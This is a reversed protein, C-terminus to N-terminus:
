FDRELYARKETSEKGIKYTLKLNGGGGSTALDLYLNKELNHHSVFTPSFTHTKEIWDIQGKGTCGCEESDAASPVLGRDPDADHSSAGDCDRVISGKRTWEEHSRRHGDRTRRIVLGAHGCNGEGRGCM